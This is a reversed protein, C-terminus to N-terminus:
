AGGPGPNWHAHMAALTPLEAGNRTLVVTGREGARAAPAHSTVTDWPAWLAHRTARRAIATLPWPAEVPRHDYGLMRTRRRTAIVLGEIRLRLTGDPGRVDTLRVDSVHGIDRGAPDRVRAGMLDALHM